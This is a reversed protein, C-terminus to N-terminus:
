PPQALRRTRSHFNSVFRQAPNWDDDLITARIDIGVIHERTDVATELQDLAVNWMVEAMQLTVEGKDHRLPERTAARVKVVLSGAEDLQGKGDIWLEAVGLNGGGNKVLCHM